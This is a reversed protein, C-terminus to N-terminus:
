DDINASYRKNIKNLALTYDKLNNIFVEKYFHFYINEEDEKIISAGLKLHFNIVAQNGKRVDFHSKNFGLTCFAYKYLLIASEFSAYARAEPTIIWSGWCFSDDQIDYIRITGVPIQKKNQVIFYWEEKNDKSYVIWDRQKQIDNEVPSLHQNLTKDLRLSLIFEADNVDVPRLDINTGIIM